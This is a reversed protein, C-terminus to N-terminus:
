RRGRRRALGLGALGLGLVALTAPEPTATVDFGADTFVVNFTGFNMANLDGWSGTFEGANGAFFQSWSYTGVGYGFDDLDVQIGTLDVTGVNGFSFGEGFNFGNGFILDYDSAFSLNTITGANKVEGGGYILTGLNGGSVIDIGYKTAATHGYAQFGNISDTKLTVTGSIDSGFSTPKSNGSYTGVFPLSDGVQLWVNNTQIVNDAGNRPVSTKAFGGMNQLSTATVHLDSVTVKKGLDLWLSGSEFYVNNFTKEFSSGQNIKATGGVLGVNQNSYIELDIDKGVWHNASQGSQAQAVVAGLMMITAVFAVITTMKRM